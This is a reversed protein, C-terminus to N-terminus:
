LAHNRFGLRTLEAIAAGDNPLFQGRHPIWVGCSREDVIELLLKSLMEIAETEPLDKNQLDFSAWARQQRWWIKQEEPLLRAGTEVDEEGDEALYAGWHPFVTFLLAGAKLAYFNPTQHAFYMENSGDYPVGFARQAVDSLFKENPAFPVRMLLVMSFPM